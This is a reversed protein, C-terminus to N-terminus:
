RRILSIAVTCGINTYSGVDPIMFCGSTWQWVRFRRGFLRRGFTEPCLGRPFLKELNNTAMLQSGGHKEGVHGLCDNSSGCLM